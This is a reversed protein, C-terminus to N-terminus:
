PAMAAYLAPADEPQPLETINENLYGSLAIVSSFRKPNTLGLSYSLIAGQSFGLLHVQSKDYSHIEMLEDLFHLVLKRSENAENEKNKMLIYAIGHM